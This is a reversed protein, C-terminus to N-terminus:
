ICSSLKCSPRLGHLRMLRRVRYRGTPLGQARLVAQLRRSGYSAGSAHFAAQLHV